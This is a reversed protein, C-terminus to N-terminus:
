RRRRRWRYWQRAGGTSRRRRATRPAPSNGARACCVCSRSPRAQAQAAAAPPPISQSSFAFGEGARALNFDKETVGGADHTSLTIRVRNYVNWIEPHHDRQEAEFGVRVIFAVAERFSGFRFERAIANGERKWGALTALAVELADDSMTM